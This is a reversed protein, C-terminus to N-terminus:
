MRMNPRVATYIAVCGGSVQMRGMITPQQPLMRLRLQFGPVRHLQPVTCRESHLPLFLMSVSNVHRLKRIFLLMTEAFCLYNCFHCNDVYLISFNRIDEENDIKARKREKM